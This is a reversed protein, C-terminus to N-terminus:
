TRVSSSTLVLTKIKSELKENTLIQSLLGKAQDINMPDYTEIIIKFSFKNPTRM